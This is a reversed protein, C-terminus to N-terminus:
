RDKDVQCASPVGAPCTLIGAIYQQLHAKPVVNIRQKVTFKDLITRIRAKGDYNVYLFVLGYSHCSTGEGLIVRRELQACVSNSLLHSNVVTYLGFEDNM